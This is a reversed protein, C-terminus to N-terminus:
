VHAREERPLGDDILFADFRLRQQLETLAPLPMVAWPRELGHVRRLRDLATYLLLGDGGARLPRSLPQMTEVDTAPVRCPVYVFPPLRDFLDTM